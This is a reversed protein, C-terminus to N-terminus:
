RRPGPTPSREGLTCLRAGPRDPVAFGRAALLPRIESIAGTVTSRGGRYLEALAQHTLGTRLHVLTLLVRDTFALANRPGAGAARRREGRRRERLNSERRASWPTTM